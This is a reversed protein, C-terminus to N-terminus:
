VIVPSAPRTRTRGRALPSTSTRAGDAGRRQLSVNRAYELDRHIADVAAAPGNESRLKAAVDRATARMTSDGVLAALAAAVSAVSWKRVHVGAGLAEIRDAWFYQDGFWPKIAAPIGARLAAATTGAGGHHMAGAVRPFLWDHPASKLEYIDAHDALLSPTPSAARPRRDAWGRCVIARVNAHTVAAAITRTLEDPDPVVISGFGIYVTRAPDKELFEVLGEPAKWGVDPEDLFWYGAVHVSDAWDSPPPLVTPSIGYLFPVDDANPMSAVPELRLMERRWQNVYKRTGAWVLQEAARFTSANYMGVTAKKVGARADGRAAQPAFPHPFARTRTWPMMFARFVPIGTAEGIHTGAGLCGAAEVLVDTGEAAACASDLLGRLWPGLHASVHRIFAPTFMGHDVCLRMIEAPDGALPCFELGHSEVWIRYEAHTALRCRHGASRLAKGLAIFPQVDGRTGITLLTIHLNTPPVRPILDRSPAIQPFWDLKDSDIAPTFAADGGSGEQLIASYKATAGDVVLGATTPTAMARIAAAVAERAGRSEFELVLEAGGAVHVTVAMGVVTVDVVESATVLRSARLPGAWASAFGVHRQGVWVRGSRPLTRVWVAASATVVADDVQFHTRFPDDVPTVAGISPTVVGTHPTPSMPTAPIVRARGLDLSAHKRHMTRRRAPSAASSNRPLPADIVTGSDARDAPALPVRSVSVSRSRRIKDLLSTPTAWATPPPALHDAANIVIPVPMASNVLRSVTACARDPHQFYAFAYTDDDDLTLQVGDDQLVPTVSQIASYPLLLRVDDPNQIRFAAAQLARLWEKHAPPSTAMLRWVAGRATKVKITTAHSQSPEISTVDRLHLSEIPHLLNKGDSYYSLTADRLVFWYTASGLFPARQKALFGARVPTDDHPIPSYFCAAHDLLFLRGKLLVGRVLWCSHEELLSYTKTADLAFVQVLARAGASQEPIRTASVTPPLRLSPEDCYPLLAHSPLLIPHLPQDDVIAAELIALAAHPTSTTAM